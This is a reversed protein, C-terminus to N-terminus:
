EEEGQTKSLIMLCKHREDLGNQEALITFGCDILENYLENFTYSQQHGENLQQTERCHLSLCFLGDTKLVRWIERECEIRDCTHDLANTSFVVDVSSSCIPIDEGYACIYEWDPNRTISKLSRFQDMLPDVLRWGKANYAVAMGGYPGCGVDLAVDPFYPLPSLDNFQQICRKYKNIHFEESEDPTLQIDEWCRMEYEIFNDPWVMITELRKTGLM